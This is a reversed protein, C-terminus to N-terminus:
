DAQTDQFKKVPDNKKEEDTKPKPAMGLFVLEDQRMEEVRKRALIGRLIRQVKKSADDENMVPGRAALRGGGRTGQEDLTKKAKKLRNRYQRGRDNKQIMRIASVIDMDLTFPDHVIEQEAEDTKIHM